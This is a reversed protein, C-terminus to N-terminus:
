NTFIKSVTLDQIEQKLSQYKLFYKKLKKTKIDIEQQVSVYSEQLGLNSEEQQELKQQM